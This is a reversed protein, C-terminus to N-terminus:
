HTMKFNSGMNQKGAKKNEAAIGWFSISFKLKVNISKKKRILFDNLSHRNNSLLKYKGETQRIIWFYMKREDVM